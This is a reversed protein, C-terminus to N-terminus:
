RREALGLAAEVLQLATGDEIMASTVRYVTWGLMAAANYKAIDGMFGEPRTHRGRSWIGGECEIAVMRDPWSLDFRWKRTEHFKHERVPDPLGVMRIQAALTDALDNV